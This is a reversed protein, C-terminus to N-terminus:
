SVLIRNLFQKRKNIFRKRTLATKKTCFSLLIKLDALKM